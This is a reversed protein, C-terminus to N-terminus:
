DPSVAKKRRETPSMPDEIVPSAWFNKDESSIWIFRREPHKQSIRFVHVQHECINAVGHYKANKAFVMQFDPWDPSFKPEMIKSSSWIEVVIISRKPTLLSIRQLVKGSQYPIFQPESNIIGGVNYDKLLDLPGNLPEAIDYTGWNYDRESTM